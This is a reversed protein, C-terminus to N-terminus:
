LTTLHTALADVGWEPRVAGDAVALGTRSEISALLDLLDMSDLDLDTFSAGRDVSEADLEPAVDGLADLVIVLADPLTLSM